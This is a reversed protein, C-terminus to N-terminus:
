PSHHESTKSAQLLYSLPHSNKLGTPTSGMALLRVLIAEFNVNMENPSVSMMKDIFKVMTPILM